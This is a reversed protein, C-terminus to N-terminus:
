TTPRTDKEGLRLTGRALMGLSRSAGLESELLELDGPWRDAHRRAAAIQAGVPLPTRGDGPHAVGVSISPTARRPSCDLAPVL